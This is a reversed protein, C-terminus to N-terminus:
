TQSNLEIRENLEGQTKKELRNSRFIDNKLRQIGESYRKRYDVFEETFNNISFEPDVTMRYKFTELDIRIMAFWRKIEGWDKLRGPVGLTSHILALVAGAGAFILWVYKFNQNSWLAWGSIASGSATLAVLVKTIEDLIQWRNIMKDAAMEEYYADYYTNFAANWLEDRPDFTM